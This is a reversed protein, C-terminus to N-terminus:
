KSEEKLLLKDKHYLEVGAIGLTKAHSSSFSEKIRKEADSMKEAM